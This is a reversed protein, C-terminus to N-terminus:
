RLHTPCWNNKLLQAELAFFSQHSFVDQLKLTCKQRWYATTIHAMIFNLFYQLVFDTKYGENWPTNSVFTNTSNNLNSKMYKNTSKRNNSIKEYLIFDTNWNWKKIRKDHLLIIEDSKWGYVRSNHITYCWYFHTPAPIWLCVHFTKQILRTVNKKTPM